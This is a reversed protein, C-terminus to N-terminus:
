RRIMDPYSHRVPSREILAIRHFTDSIAAIGEGNESDVMWKDGSPDTWVSELQPDTVGKYPGNPDKAIILQRTRVKMTFGTETERLVKQEDQIIGIIGAITTDKFQYTFTAVEGNLEMLVPAVYSGIIADIFSGM